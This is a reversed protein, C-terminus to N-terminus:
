PVNLVQVEQQFNTTEESQEFELNLLVTGGRQANASAYDFSGTNISDAVTVSNRFLSLSDGTPILCYAVLDSFIYQRNGVSDSSISAAGGSVTYVGGSVSTNLNTVSLASAFEEFRTPNIILQHGGNIVDNSDVDNNGVIFDINAGSVAYFGSYSIPYFSICSNAGSIVGDDFSNPVAHRIERSMKELIFKAQTQLRQRDISDAYGKTGFEVFGAIGLVIIGSIIMTVVMEILTFGNLKM